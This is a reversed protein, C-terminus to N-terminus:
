YAHTVQLHPTPIKGLNHSNFLIVVVIQTVLSGETHTTNVHDTNVPIDHCNLGNELNKTEKPKSHRIIGVLCVRKNGLIKSVQEQLHSCKVQKTKGHGTKENSQRKLM